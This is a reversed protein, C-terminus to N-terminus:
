SNNSKLLNEWTVWKYWDIWTINLALAQENLVFCKWDTM